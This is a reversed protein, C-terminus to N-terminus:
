YLAQKIIVDWRFESIYEDSSSGKGTKHPCRIQVLIPVNMYHYCSSWVPLKDIIRNIKYQPNGILTGSLMIWAVLHHHRSFRKRVYLVAQMLTLRTYQDSILYIRLSSSYMYLYLLKGEFWTKWCEWAHMGNWNFCGWTSRDIKSYRYKCHDISIRIYVCKGAPSM